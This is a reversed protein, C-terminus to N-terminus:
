DPRKRAPRGPYAKPIGRAAREMPRADNFKLIEKSLFKLMVSDLAQLQADLAEVREIVRLKKSRGRHLAIDIARQEALSHFRGVRADHLHRQFKCKSIYSLLVILIRLTM